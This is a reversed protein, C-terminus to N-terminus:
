ITYDKEWDPYIEALDHETLRREVRIERLQDLRPDNEDPKGIYRAKKRPITGPRPESIWYMAISKRGQGDPCTIQDPFGHWSDDSTKFLVARNFIPTVQVGKKSMEKHWFEINGGYEEKWDKNLYVILNLRREKNLMPHLGYDVHMDLKGGKPHYHLGAGHLYPDYELNTIGSIKRVLSVTCESSLLCFLDKYIKPFDKDKAYKIEIPNYYKHWSDDIGPFQEHLAEIYKKNFFDDIVVHSFPQADRFQEHLNDLNNIWNGFINELIYDNYLDYPFIKVQYM